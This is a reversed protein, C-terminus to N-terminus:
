DKNGAKSESINGSELKELQKSVYRRSEDYQAMPNDDVKNQLIAAEQASYTTKQGTSRDLGQVDPANPTFIEITNHIVSGELYNGTGKLREWAGKFPQGNDEYERAKEMNKATREFAEERDKAATVNALEYHSLNQADFVIPADKYVEMKDIKLDKLRDKDDAKAEEIATDAIKAHQVQQTSLDDMRGFEGIVKRKDAEINVGYDTDQAEKIKNDLDVQKFVNAVGEKINMDKMFDEDLTNFDLHGYEAKIANIATEGGMMKLATHQAILLKDDESISKLSSVNMQQILGAVHNEYEINGKMNSANINAQLERSLDPTMKIQNALHDSDRAQQVTYSYAKQLEDTSREYDTFKQSWSATATNSKQNAIQETVTQNMQSALVNQFENTFQNARSAKNSNEESSQARASDNSKVSYNADRRDGLKTTDQFLAEGGVINGMGVDPGLLSKKLIKGVGNSIKNKKDDPKLNKDPDNDDGDGLQYGFKIGAKLTSGNKFTFVTSGDKDTSKTYNQNGGESGDFLKTFLVGVATKRTNDDMQGRSMSDVTREVMAWKQDFSLNKVNKDSLLRDLNKTNKESAGQVQKLAQSVEMGKSTNQAQALGSLTAKGNISAYNVSSGVSAIPARKVTDPINEKADYHKAQTNWKDVLSNMTMLMGSFLGMCIMPVSALAGNALALKVSVADYFAPANKLSLFAKPDNTPNFRQFEEHLQLHTYYNIISAVPLWMFACITFLIYSGFVKFSSVGQIIVIILVLPFLIISLIILLNQGDRMISVFGSADAASKEKWQEISTLYNQCKAKDSQLNTSTCHNVASLTSDLISTKLFQLVEPNTAGALSGISTVIEGNTTFRVGQNESANDQKSLSKRVDATFNSKELDLDSLMQLTANSNRGAMYADLASSVYDGAESCSLTRESVAGSVPVRVYRNNVEEAQLASLFASFGDINSKYQKVNFESNNVLCINSIEELTPKLNPIGASASIGTYKLAHLLKLPAVYGEDTIKTFGGYPVYYITELQKTATYAIGSIAGLPLALGVPVNDVSVPAQTSYQDQIVVTAKPVTLGFYLILPLLVSRYDLQKKQYGSYIMVLLAMLAGLLAGYGLGFPLNSTWIDISGGEAVKYMMAVGNLASAFLKVDGLCYITFLM